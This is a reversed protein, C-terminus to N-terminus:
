KISEQHVTGKQKHLHEHSVVMSSGPTGYLIGEAGCVPCCFKMKVKKGKPVEALIGKCGDNECLVRM